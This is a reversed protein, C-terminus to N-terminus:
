HIIFLTGDILIQFKNIDNPGQVVNQQVGCNSKPQSYIFMTEYCFNFLNSKLLM